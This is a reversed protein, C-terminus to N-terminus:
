NVIIFTNNSSLSQSNLVNTTTAYGANNYPVIVFTTPEKLPPTTLLLIDDSVITYNTLTIGSITEPQRKFGNVSTIATTYANVNSASLLVNNIYKFSSGQLAIYASTNTTITGPEFLMVNNLFVNSISPSGSLEFTETESYLGTSVPYTYTGGSLDEYSTLLSEATFTTDIYYIRGVPDAQEKFLWGKITFSTDATIRAKENGQIDTPYGMVLNEDWLVESRIEQERPMGLAEPIKWGIVIYPNTYPVFNSIIQDMDTQYRTLISVNVVINIPVPSRLHASTAGSGNYYFGDLKNFVRTTDRSISQISVAVAPLTITKALNIIDYLVRQKPSYVYRVAIRDEAKRNVNYRKIVIDDFAAVFQTLIDKIEFYYPSQKM